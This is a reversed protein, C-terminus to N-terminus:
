TIKNKFSSYTCHWALNVFEDFTIIKKSSEGELYAINLNNLEIITFGGLLVHKLTEFTIDTDNYFEVAKEGGIIRLEDMHELENNITDKLEGLAQEMQKEINM